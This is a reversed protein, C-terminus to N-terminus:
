INIFTFNQMDSVIILVCFICNIDGFKGLNAMFSKFTVILLSWLSLLCQESTTLVVLFSTPKM